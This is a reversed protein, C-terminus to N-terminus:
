ETKLVKSVKVYGKEKEPAEELLKKTYEEKKHPSKDERMINRHSDLEEDTSVDIKQLISVYDVIQSFEKSLSQAEKETLTIRSLKALKEVEEKNFM